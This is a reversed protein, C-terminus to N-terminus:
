EGAPLTEAAAKMIPLVKEWVPVTLNYYTEGGDVKGFDGQVIALVTVGDREALNFTIGDEDSVPQREMRVDFVTFRLMTHPTVTTVNGAVFAQGDALNKWRVPSGLRWDSVLEGAQGLFEPVWQRTQDPNTLVQWVQAAPAQITIAQKVFLEKGSTM